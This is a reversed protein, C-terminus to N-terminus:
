LNNYVRKFESYNFFTYEKDFEITLYVFTSYNGNWWKQAEIYDNFDNKSADITYTYSGDFNKKGETGNVMINDYHGNKKNSQIGFNVYNFPISIKVNFIVKKAKKKGIKIVLFGKENIYNVTDKNSYYSFDTFKLFDGQSIKIFNDRIVEDFWKDNVRDYFNITGFKKNSNDLLCSM